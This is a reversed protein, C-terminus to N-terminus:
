LILLAQLNLSEDIQIAYELLCVRNAYWKEQWRVLQIAFHLQAPPLFTSFAMMKFGATAAFYVKYFLWLISSHNDKRSPLYLIVTFKQLQRCFNCHETQSLNTRGIDHKWKCFHKRKHFECTSLTPHWASWQLQKFYFLLPFLYFSKGCLKIEEGSAAMWWWRRRSLSRFSNGERSHNPESLHCLQVVAEPNAPHSCM